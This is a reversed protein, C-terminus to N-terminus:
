PLQPPPCTCAILTHIRLICTAVIGLTPCCWATGSLVSRATVIYLVYVCRAYCVCQTRETFKRCAVVGVNETAAISELDCSNIATLNVLHTTNFEVDRGDVTLNHSCRSGNCVTTRNVEESYNTGPIAIRYKQIPFENGTYTPESWLLTISPTNDQRSTRLEDPPSPFGVAM